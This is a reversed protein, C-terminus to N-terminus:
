HAGGLVMFVTFVAKVFQGIGHTGVMQGDIALLCSCSHLHIGFVVFVVGFALNVLVSALVVETFTPLGGRGKDNDISTPM